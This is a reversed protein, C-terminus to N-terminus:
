RDPSPDPRSGNPEGRGNRALTALSGGWLLFLAVMGWRSAPPNETITYTEGRSEIVWVCTRGPPSWNWTGTGQVSSDGTLPCGSADSAYWEVALLASWLLVSLIWIGAWVHLPSIRKSANTM